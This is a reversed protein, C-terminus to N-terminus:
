SSALTARRGWEQEGGRSAVGSWEVRLLQPYVRGSSAGILGTFGSGQSSISGTFYWRNLFGHTILVGPEGAEVWIMGNLFVGTCYLIVNDIRLMPQEMRSVRILNNILFNSSTVFSHVNEKNVGCKKPRNKKLCYSWDSNTHFHSNFSTIHRGEESGGGGSGRVTPLKGQQCLNPANNHSFRGTM